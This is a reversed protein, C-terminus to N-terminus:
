QDFGPGFPSTPTSLDEVYVQDASIRTEVSLRSANTAPVIEYVVETAATIDLKSAASLVAERKLLQAAIEAQTPVDAPFRRLPSQPLPPTIQTSNSLMSGIFFGHAIARTVHGSDYSVLSQLM